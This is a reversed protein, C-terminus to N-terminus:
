IPIYFLQTGDVLDPMNCSFEFGNASDQQIGSTAEAGNDASNGGNITDVYCVDIQGSAEHFMAQFRM